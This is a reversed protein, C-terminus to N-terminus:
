RSEPRFASADFIPRIETEGEWGPWHLQHLEMFHQTEEIAEQMSKLEFMAYGGIVEKTEIFPGDTLSVKGSALRVRAAASSPLLGGTEILSGTRARAECLEAMAEMLAKPPPGANETSKVLMM